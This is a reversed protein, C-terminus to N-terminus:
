ITASPVAQTHFPNLYCRSLHVQAVNQMREGLAIRKGLSEIFFRRSHKEKRRTVKEKWTIWFFTGYRGSGKFM